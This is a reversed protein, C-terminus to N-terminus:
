MRRERRARTSRHMRLNALRWEYANGEVQAVLYGDDDTFTSTVVAQQGVYQCMDAAWQAEDADGGDDAPLGESDYHVGLLVTDGVHIVAERGTDTEDSYEFEGMEAERQARVSTLMKMNELHFVYEVARGDVPEIKAYARCGLRRNTVRGVKAMHGVFNDMLRCWNLGGTHRGVIVLDGARILYERARDSEPGDEFADFDLPTQGDSLRQWSAIFRMPDRYLEPIVDATRLDSRDPM